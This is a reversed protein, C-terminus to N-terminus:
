YGSEGVSQAECDQMRAGRASHRAEVLFRQVHLRYVGSSLILAQYVDFSVRVLVEHTLDAALKQLQGLRDIALKQATEKDAMAQELQESQEEAAADADEKDNQFQALIAVQKSVAQDALHKGARLQDLVETQKAFHEDALTLKHKLDNVEIRHRADMADREFKAQFRNHKKDEEHTEFAHRISAAQEKAQAISRDQTEKLQSEKEELKLQMNAYDELKERLKRSADVSVDQFAEAQAKLAKNQGDIEALRELIATSDKTQDRLIRAENELTTIQQQLRAKTEQTVAIEQRSETVAVEAVHMREELATKAACQGIVQDTLSRQQEGNESMNQLQQQMGSM